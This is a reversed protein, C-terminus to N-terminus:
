GKERKTKKSKKSKKNEKEKHKKRKDKKEKEKKRKKVKQGKSRKVKEASPSRSAWTSPALTRQGRFFNSLQFTSHNFLRRERVCVFSKRNVIKGNRRKTENQRKTTQRKDNHRKTTKDNQRKRKSRKVKKGKVKKGKEAKEEKRKGREEKRKWDPNPARVKYFKINRHWFKWSKLFVSKRSKLSRWVESECRKCCCGATSKQVKSKPSKIKPEM